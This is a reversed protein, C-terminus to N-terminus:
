DFEYKEEAPTQDPGVRGPRIDAYFYAEGKMPAGFMRRLMALQGVHTLADAFPGQYWKDLPVDIPAESALADDISALAAHFRATQREWTDPPVEQWTTPGRLRRASVELLDGIHALIELPTRTTPTAKFHAFEPPAGRLAKAGRYAITATAHRLFQRVENM